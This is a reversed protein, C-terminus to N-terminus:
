PRGDSKEQELQTLQADIDIMTKGGTVYGATASWSTTPVWGAAAQTAPVSRIVIGAVAAAAALLATVWLASRRRRRTPLAVDLAVRSRAVALLQERCTRCAAIHSEIENAQEVHLEDYALLLLEDETPHNM